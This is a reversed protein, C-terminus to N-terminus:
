SRTRREIFTRAFGLFAKRYDQPQRKAPAKAIWADFEAQVGHADWGPHLSQFRDVTDDDLRTAPFLPLEGATVSKRGAVPPTRGGHPVAGDRRTMLLGPEGDGTELALEYGPLPDRGILAQMEYKFRRYSGESGSKEYLVPFSISFGEEGAGGAHKRAVRYLWRERGGTIRFYAPDISLLGGKMVVGEYFWDSLTLSMGKSKRTREDIFDDWSDIWSFQRYRNRRGSRINTAITTAQLRALAERLRHYQDGGTQRGIAKLLDYAQFKLTRPLDNVGQRKLHQIQSSAWILVDADWITAMGHEPVAAVRVYVGTPSTYDIPKLRKRKSLSFFPREMSERQDKLPLDPVLSAVFFDFQEPPQHEPRETTTNM